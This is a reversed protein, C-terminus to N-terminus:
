LEFERPAGFYSVPPKSTRNPDDRRGSALWTYCLSQVSNGRPMKVLAMSGRKSFNTTITKKASPVCTWPIDSTIMMMKGDSGMGTKIKHFEAV